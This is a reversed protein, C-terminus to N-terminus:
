GACPAEIDSYRTESTGAGTTGALRWRWTVVARYERNRCTSQATNAEAWEKFWGSDSASSILYWNGDDERVQLRVADISVDYNASDTQVDVVRARAFVTGPSGGNYLVAVCREVKEGWCRRDASAPAAVAISLTMAAASAVAALRVLRNM